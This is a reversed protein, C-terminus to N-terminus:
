TGSSEVVYNGGVIAEKPQQSRCRTDTWSGVADDEPQICVM